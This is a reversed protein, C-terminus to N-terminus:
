TIILCEDNQSTKMDFGINAQLIQGERHCTKVMGQSNLTCQSSMAETHSVKYWENWLSGQVQKPM